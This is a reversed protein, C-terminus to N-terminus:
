KNEGVRNIMAAAIGAGFGNDINVVSIGPVCTNLMALLAAIGQMSTGYGVSTPIAIIPKDILGGVVSPLAGEMGAVVVVARASRLLELHPMLRHLGAVGADYVREVKAGMREATLAAEEAVPIDSTGASVVAVLGIPKSPKVVDLTIAHADKHYVTGPIAKKIARAQDDSVRTAFINQGAKKLARMIATIQETTKSPCYIVEPLGRRRLRDTDVKAFGLDVHAHGLMRVAQAASLKGSEVKSLIDRVNM